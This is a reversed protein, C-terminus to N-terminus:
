KFKTVWWAPLTIKYNERIRKTVEVLTPHIAENPGDNGFCVKSTLNDIITPKWIKLILEHKLFCELLAQNNNKFIYKFISMGNEKCKEHHDGFFGGDKLLTKAVIGKSREDSKEEDRTNPGLAPYLMIAVAAV